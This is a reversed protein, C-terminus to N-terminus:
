LSEDDMDSEQPSYIIDKILLCRPAGKGIWTPKSISGDNHKAIWGRNAWDSAFMEVANEGVINKWETSTHLTRWVTQGDRKVAVLKRDYHLNHWTPRGERGDHSYDSQIFLLRVREWADAAPDRDQNSQKLILAWTKLIDDLDLDLAAVQDIIQLTAAAIALLKRWAQLEALTQDLEFAKTDLEFAPWDRLIRKCIQHGFTGAGAEWAANLQRARRVGESSRAPCGLPPLQNCDFSFVRNNSGANMFNMSTEGATILLGRIEQGGGTRRNGPTGYSRNQGNAFDYIIGETEQKKRELMKHVDDFFVPLGNAEILSTAMGKPTTTGSGCQVQMPRVRPDGYCGTAFHTITTKGSGSAGGLHIIPNRDHRAKAYIPSAIGLALVAWLVPTAWERIAALTQPYINADDGVAIPQGIYRLTTDGGILGAPLLMGDAVNGYYESHKVHPIIKRNIYAFEILYASMNRANSAHIAGGAGGIARSVGAQSAMDSRLAVVTGSNGGGRWNVVMTQEDTHINQGTESVWIKGLYLLNDGKYICGDHYYHGPPLRYTENDVKLYREDDDTPEKSTPKPQPLPVPVDLPRAEGWALGDTITDRANHWDKVTNPLAHELEQIVTERDIIRYHLYGGLMNAAERLTDHKSGEPAQRVRQKADELKGMIASRIYAEERKGNGNTHGSENTQHVPAPAAAPAAPPPPKDSLVWAPLEALPTDLPTDWDYAVGSPHISPPAIVYGGDGRIDLGKIGNLATRNSVKGGPHKYYRHRGKSTKVTLTHPIGHQRAYAEADDNDTDVVVIGSVTGTVIAWNCGPYQELWAAIEEPTARRSQYDLWTGRPKGEGDAKIGDPTCVVKCAQPLARSLPMKTRAGCAVVSFGLAALEHIPHTM